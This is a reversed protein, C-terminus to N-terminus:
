PRQPSATQIIKTIWAVFPLNSATLAKLERDVDYEVPRISPALGDVLLYAARCDGDQSQGGSGSNAIYGGERGRSLLRRVFPTHIHGYVLTPQPVGEYVANLEDDGAQM